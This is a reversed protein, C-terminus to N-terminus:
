NSKFLEPFVKKSFEDKKNSFMSVTRLVSKEFAENGRSRKKIYEIGSDIDDIEVIEMARMAEVEISLNKSDRIREMWKDYDGDDDILNEGQRSLYAKRIIELMALKDSESKESRLVGNVDNEFKVRTDDIRRLFDGRFEPAEEGYYETAIDKKDDEVINKQSEKDTHIFESM